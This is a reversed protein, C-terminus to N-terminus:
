RSIRGSYGNEWVSLFSEPSFGAAQGGHFLVNVQGDHAYFTFDGTAYLNPPGLEYQYYPRVRNDADPSWGPPALPLYSGDLIIIEVPKTTEFDRRGNQAEIMGYTGTYGVYDFGGGYGYKTDNTNPWKVSLGLKMLTPCLYMERSGVYPLIHIPWQDSLNGHWHTALKGNHDLAYNAMAIGNQRLNSLCSAKFAQQQARKVAPVLLAALISIIAIVVLLEILTFALPIDPEPHLSRSGPNSIHSEGRGQAAGSGAPRRASHAPGPVATRM